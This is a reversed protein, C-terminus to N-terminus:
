NDGCKKKDWECRQRTTDALNEAASDRDTSQRPSEGKRRDCCILAIRRKCKLVCRLILRPLERSIHLMESNLWV